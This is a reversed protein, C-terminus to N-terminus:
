KKSDVSAKMKDLELIQKLLSNAEAETEFVIRIAAQSEQRKGNVYESVINKEFILVVAYKRRFSTVKANYDIKAPDFAVASVEEIPAANIYPSPKVCEFRIVWRGAKDTEFSNSYEWNGIEVGSNDAVYQCAKALKTEYPRRAAANARAAQAREAHAQAEAAKARAAPRLEVLADIASDYEKGEPLAVKLYAELAAVAEVPKGLAQYILGEKLLLRSSGRPELVRVEAITKLADEYKGAAFEKSFRAMLIDLEVEPRLGGGQARATSPLAAMCALMTLLAFISRASTM